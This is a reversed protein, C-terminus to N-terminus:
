PRAVCTGRKCTGTGVFDSAEAFTCEAGEAKPGCTESRCGCEVAPRGECLLCAEYGAAFCLRSAGCLAEGSGCATATACPAVLDVYAWYSPSSPHNDEIIVLLRFSTGKAIKIRECGHPQVVPQELSREVCDIGPVRQHRPLGEARLQPSHVTSDTVPPLDSALVEIDADAVLDDSPVLTTGQTVSIRQYEFARSAAILESASAVHFAPKCTTLSAPACSGSVTSVSGTGAEAGADAGRVPDATGGSCAAIATFLGLSLPSLRLSM